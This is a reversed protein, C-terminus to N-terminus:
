DMEIDDLRSRRFGDELRKLGMYNRGSVIYHEKLSVGINALAAEVNGTAIHDDPSPEMKGAPHNHALIVKAAGKSLCHEMLHRIDLSTKEFNGKGVICESIYGDRKDLFVALIQEVPSDKLASSMYKGSQDYDTFKQRYEKNKAIVGEVEGIFRLYFSAGPSIGKEELERETAGLVNSLSGFESLLRHALPKTDKRPIAYFLLMELIECETFTEIGHQKYRNRLRERHNAHHDFSQQSKEKIDNNINEKNDKIDKIEKAM